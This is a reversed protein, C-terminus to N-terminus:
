PLNTCDPPKNIDVEWGSEADNWEQKSTDHSRLNCQPNIITLPKDYMLMCSFLVLTAFFSFLHFPAYICSYVPYICSRCVCTCVHVCVCINISLYISKIQNSDHVHLGVCTSVCVCIYKDMNKSESHADAVAGELFLRGFIQAAVVEQCPPTHPGELTAQARQIRQFASILFTRHQTKISKAHNQQINSPNTKLPHSKLPIKISKVQSLM